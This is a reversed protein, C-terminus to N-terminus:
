RFTSSPQPPSPLAEFRPSEVVRYGTTEDRRTIIRAATAPLTGVLDLGAAPKLVSLASALADARMGASAVVTVLRHQTLAEGTRPDIIHSYRVGNVDLHRYTDGSTAVACHALRRTRQVLDGNGTGDYIAVAWGEKGPPSAGLRVDGGADVLVRSLGHNQLVTLAEDAAYGKAIGGLDLRMGPRDLRVTQATSDLHLHQYGVAQQAEAWVAEPPLQNRRQGWRWWRTLPGVTVDFAGKTRRALHQAENLVIWLDDSVDVAQGAGATASLRNLESDSRYDSLHANLTDIRAFAAEAARRARASDPAYLVVNFQTGMQAHSFAYRKLPQGQDSGGVSVSLGVLLLLVRQVFRTM